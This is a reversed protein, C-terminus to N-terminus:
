VGGAFGDEALLERGERNQACLSFRNGERCASGAEAPRNWEVGSFGGLSGACAAVVVLYANLNVTARNARYIASWEDLKAADDAVRTYRCARSKILIRM